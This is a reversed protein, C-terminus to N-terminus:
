IALQLEKPNSELAYSNLVGQLENRSNVNLKGLIRSVHTKVTHISICLYDAIEQNSQGRVMLKVLEKERGTLELNSITFELMEESTISHEQYQRIAFAIVQRSYWIEGASLCRIIRPYSDVSSQVSAVGSFGDVLSQMEVIDSVDAALNLWTGGVRQIVGAGIQGNATSDYVVLNNSTAQYPELNQITSVSHIKAEPFSLGLQQELARKRKQDKSVIAINKPM